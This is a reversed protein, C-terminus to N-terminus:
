LPISCTDLRCPGPEQYLRLCCRIARGTLQVGSRAWARYLGPYLDRLPGTQRVSGEHGLSWRRDIKRPPDLRFTVGNPRVAELMRKSEAPHALKLSACFDIPTDVGDSHFISRVLTKGSPAGIQVTSAHCPLDTTRRLENKQQSQLRGSPDHTWPVLAGEKAASSACCHM